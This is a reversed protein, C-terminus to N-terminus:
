LKKGLSTILKFLYGKLKFFYDFEVIWDMLIIPLALQLVM